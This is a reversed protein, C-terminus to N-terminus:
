LNPTLYEAHIYLGALNFLLHVVLATSTGLISLIM